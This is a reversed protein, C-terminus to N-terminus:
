RVASEASHIAAATDVRRDPTAQLSVGLIRGDLGKIQAEIYAHLVWGTPTSAGKALSTLASKIASSKPKELALEADLTDLSSGIRERNNDDLDTLNSRM